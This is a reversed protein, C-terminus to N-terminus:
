CNEYPGSFLAAVPGRRSKTIAVLRGYRASSVLFHDWHRGHKETNANPYLRRLRAGRDGVRLGKRTHFTLAGSIASQITRQRVTAEIALRPTDTTYMVQLKNGWRVRVARICGLRVRQRSTPDGFHAKSEKLTTVGFRIPGVRTGAKVADVPHASALGALSLTGAALGVACLLSLRRSM